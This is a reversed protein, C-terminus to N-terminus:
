LLLNFHSSLSCNADLRLEVDKCFAYPVDNTTGGDQAITHIDIEYLEM